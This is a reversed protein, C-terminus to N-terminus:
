PSTITNGVQADIRDALRTAFFTHALANPHNDAPHTHWRRAPMNSFMPWANFVPIGAERCFLEQLEYVRQLSLNGLHRVSPYIAALMPTGVASLEQNLEALAAFSDRWAEASTAVGTYDFLIAVSRAVRDALPLYQALAATGGTFSAGFSRADGPHADNWVMAIIVMDPDYSRVTRRYHEVEQRTDYANVGANIVEIQDSGHRDRLITELQQPWADAWHVGEGLTFSDGLAAIRFMGRPKALPLERERLGQSNSEYRVAADPGFYEDPDSSYVHRWRAHPAIHFRRADSVIVAYHDSEVQMIRWDRLRIVEGISLECITYTGVALWFAFLKGRHRVGDGRCVVAVLFWPMMLAAAVLLRPGMSPPIERAQVGVLVIWLGIGVLVSLVVYLRDRSFKPKRVALGMAVPLVGAALALVLAIEQWRPMPLPSAILGPLHTNLVWVCALSECVLVLAARHSDRM